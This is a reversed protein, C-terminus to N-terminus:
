DAPSRDQAKNKDHYAELAEQLTMGEIFRMTYYPRGDAFRSLSYVPVIAPHQLKGTVEAEFEFEARADEDDARDPKIQKLAVQRNLEEDFANYVDALGGPRHLGIVRYRTSSQPPPSPQPPQTVFRDTVLQEGHVERRKFEGDKRKGIHAAPPPPITAPGGLFHPPDAPIKQRPAPESAPAAMQAQAAIQQPAALPQRRIIASLQDIEAPKVGPLQSILSELPTARDLTWAHLVRVFEDRTILGLQLSVVLLLLGHEVSSEM